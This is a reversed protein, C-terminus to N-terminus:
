FSRKAPRSTDQVVQEKSIGTCSVDKFSQVDKSGVFEPFGSDAKGGQHWESRFYLVVRELYASFEESEPQFVDIKGFSTMKEEIFGTRTALTINGHV